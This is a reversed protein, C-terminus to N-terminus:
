ARPKHLARALVRVLCLEVGARRALQPGWRLLRDAVQSGVTGLGILGVNLTTPTVDGSNERGHSQDQAFSVNLLQDLHVVDDGGDLQRHGLEPLAGGLVFGAPPEERWA